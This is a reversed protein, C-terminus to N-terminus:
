LISIASEPSSGSFNTALPFVVKFLGTKKEDMLM